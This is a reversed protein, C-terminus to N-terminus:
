SAYDIKGKLKSLCYLVTMEDDTLGYCRKEGINALLKELTKFNLFSCSPCVCFKSNLCSGFGSSCQFDEKCHICKKRYIM